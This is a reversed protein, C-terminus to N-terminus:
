LVFRQLRSNNVHVKARCCDIGGKNGGLGNGQVSSTTGIFELHHAIEYAEHISLYICWCGPSCFPGELVAMVVLVCLARMYGVLTTSASTSPGWGALM